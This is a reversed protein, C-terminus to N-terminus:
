DDDRSVKGAGFGRRVEGSFPPGPFRSQLAAALKNWEAHCDDNLSEYYRLARGYLRTPILDRMEQSYQHPTPKGQALSQKLTHLFASFSDHGEDGGDFIVLSSAM